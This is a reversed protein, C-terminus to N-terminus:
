GFVNKRNRYLIHQMLVIWVWEVWRCYNFIFNGSLSSNCYGNEFTTGMEALRDMNPTEVLPHGYTGSFMPGHEDSMIMLINPLDKKSM